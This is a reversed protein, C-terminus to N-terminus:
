NLNEQELMLIQNSLKSSQYRYVLTKRKEQNLQIIKDGKDVAEFLYRWHRFDKRHNELTEWNKYKEDKKFQDWTQEGVDELLKLLDHSRPYNGKTKGIWAKLILETALARSVVTNIVLGAALFFRKGTNKEEELVAEAVEEIATAYGTIKDADDAIIENAHKKTM